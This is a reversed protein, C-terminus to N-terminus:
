VETTVSCRVVRYGRSRLYRWGSSSATFHEIVERRTRKVTGIVPEGSKSVMVWGRATRPSLPPHIM